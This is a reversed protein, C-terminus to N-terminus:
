TCYNATEALSYTCSWLDHWVTQMHSCPYSSAHLKCPSFRTLSFPSADAKCTMDCMLCCTLCPMKVCQQDPVYVWRCQELNIYQDLLTMCTMLTQVLISPQTQNYLHSICAHVMNCLPQVAAFCSFPQVAKITRVGPQLAACWERMGWMQLCSNSAQILCHQM